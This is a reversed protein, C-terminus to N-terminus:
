SRGKVGHKSGTQVDQPRLKNQKKNNTSHKKNDKPWDSGGRVGSDVTDARDRQRETEKGRDGQERDRQERNRPEQEDNTKRTRESEEKREDREGGQGRKNRNRGNKGTTRDHRNGQGETKGEGTREKTTDGARGQRTRTPRRAGGQRM